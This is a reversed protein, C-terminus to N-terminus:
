AVNVYYTTKGEKGGVRILGASLLESIVTSVNSQQKKLKDAIQGVSHSGDCLSLVQSRMESDALFLQIKSSVTFFVLKKLDAQIESLIGLLANVDKYEVTTQTM